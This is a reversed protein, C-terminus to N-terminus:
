GQHNDGIYSPNAGLSLSMKLESSDSDSIISVKDKGCSGSFPLQMVLYTFIYLDKPPQYSPESDLGIVQTWKGSSV